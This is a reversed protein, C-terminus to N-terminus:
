KKKAAPPPAAAAPVAAAPAAAGAPQGAVTAPGPGVPSVAEAISPGSAIYEEIVKQTEAKKEAPCLLPKMPADEVSVTNAGDHSTIKIKGLLLMVTAAHIQHIYLLQPESWKKSAQERRIMSLYNKTELDLLDCAQAYASWTAVKLIERATDIPVQMAEPHKKDITIKNGSPTTYHDPTFNWALEMYYKVTEDSPTPGAASAGTGIVMALVALSSGLGIGRWSGLLNRM